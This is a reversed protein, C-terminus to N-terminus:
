QPTIVRTEVFTILSTSYGVIPFTTDGAFPQWTVVYRYIPTIGEMYPPRPISILITGTYHTSFWCQFIHSFSAIARSSEDYVTITLEGGDYEIGSSLLSIDYDTWVYENSGIIIVAPKVPLVCIDSAYTMRIVTPGIYSLMSPAVVGPEGDEEAMAMPMAALIGTLVLMLAIAPGGLM